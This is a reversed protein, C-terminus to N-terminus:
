GRGKEIRARLDRVEGRLTHLEAQLQMRAAAEEAVRSAMRKVAADRAGALLGPMGKVLGLLLGRAVPDQIAAAAQEMDEVRM